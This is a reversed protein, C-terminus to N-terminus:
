NGKFSRWVGIGRDRIPEELDPRSGCSTVNTEKETENRKLKLYNTRSNMDSEAEYDYENGPVDVDDIENPEEEFDFDYLRFNASVSLVSLLVFLCSRQIKM